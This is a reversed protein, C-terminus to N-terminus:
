PQQGAQWTVREVTLVGDKVEIPSGDVPVLEVDAGNLKIFIRKGVAKNNLLSDKQFSLVARLSWSPTASGKDGRRKLSWNVFMAAVAKYGKLTVQGEIGRIDSFLM